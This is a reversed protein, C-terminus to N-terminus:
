SAKKKFILVLYLGLYLAGLGMFLLSKHMLSWDLEYYFHIVAYILGLASTVIGFISRTFLFALFALLFFAIKVSFVGLLFLSLPLFVVVWLPINRDKMRRYQWVFLAFALLLLEVYMARNYWLPEQFTGRWHNWNIFGLVYYSTLAVFIGNKLYNFFYSWKIFHVLVAEEFYILLALILTFLMVILKFTYYPFQYEDILWNMQWFLGVIGLITLLNKRSVLILIILLFVSILGVHSDKWHLSYLFANFSFFGFVGAGAAMADVLRQNVFIHLLICAGLLLISWILFFGSSPNDIIQFTAGTFLGLTLLAGIFVLYELARIGFHSAHYNVEKLAAAEDITAEPFLTKWSDKLLNIKHKEM